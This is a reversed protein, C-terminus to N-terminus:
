NTRIFQGGGYQSQYNNNYNSPNYGGYGYNTQGVGAQYYLSGATATTYSSSNNVSPQNPVYVIQPYSQYQYPQTLAGNNVQNPVYNIQPYQYYQYPQSGGYSYGGGCGVGCGYSSNNYNGGYYNDYNTYGAGYGIDLYAGIYYASSNYNNDYYSYAKVQNKPMLIFLAFFVISLVVIRILVKNM